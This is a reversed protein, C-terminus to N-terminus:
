ITFQFLLRGKLNYRTLFFDINAGYAPNQGRILSTGDNKMSQINQFRYADQIPMLVIKEKNSSALERFPSIDDLIYIGRGYTGIM